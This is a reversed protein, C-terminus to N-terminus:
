TRSTLEERWRDPHKASKKHNCSPLLLQINEPINRGGLALPMIHDVHYKDGLPKSCCACLGNQKVYQKTITGYPLRDDGIRARRKAKGNVSKEPNDKHYQASREKVWDRNDEVFRKARAKVLDKNNEYYKRKYAAVKEKNNRRFNADQQKKSEINRERWLAMAERCKSINNQYYTATRDKVKDKNASYYAKDRATACPKCDGNSKRDLSGCKVCPKM